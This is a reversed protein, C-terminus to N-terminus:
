ESLSIIVTLDAEWTTQYPQTRLVGILNWIEGYSMNLPNRIAMPSSQARAGSVADPMIAVLLLVMMQAAKRNAPLRDSDVPRSM